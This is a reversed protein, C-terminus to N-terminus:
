WYKWTCLNAVFDVKRKGGFLASFQLYQIVYTNNEGWQQEGVMKKWENERWYWGNITGRHTDQWTM